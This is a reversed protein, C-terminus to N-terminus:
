HEGHAGHDEYECHLGGGDLGGFRHGCENDVIWVHIMPTLVQRGSPVCRGGIFAGVVRGQDDSCLEPHAHWGPMWRILPPITEMTTQASIFLMAAVLRYSGDAQRQFIISEPEAPNLIHEDNFKQVNVYHEYGGAVVPGINVYGMSAMASRNAYRPLVEEAYRVGDVLFQAQEPTWDGPPIIGPPVTQGSAPGSPFLLGVAAMMALVLGLHRLRGRARMRKAIHGLGM